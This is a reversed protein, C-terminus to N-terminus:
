KFYRVRGWGRVGVLAGRVVGRALFHVFPGGMGGKFRESEWIRGAAIDRVTHL